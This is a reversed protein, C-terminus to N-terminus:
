IACSRFGVFAADNEPSAFARAKPHKLRPVTLVSAGRTVRQSPMLAPPMDCVSPVTTAPADDSWRQARGAVWEHVDGWVLGRSGGTSAAIEWEVETPLRRRAWRCWADAEYWSV